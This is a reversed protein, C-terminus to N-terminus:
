RADADADFRRGRRGGRRSSGCGWCPGPTTRPSARPIRWEQWRAPLRVVPAAPRSSPFPTARSPPRPPLQDTRRRAGPRRRPSRQPRLAGWTPWPGGCAGYYRGDLHLYPFGAARGAVPCWSAKAMQRASQVFGAECLRAGQVLVRGATASLLAKWKREGPSKGGRAAALAPRWLAPRASSGIGARRTGAGPPQHKESACQRRAASRRRGRQEAIGSRSGSRTGVPKPVPAHSSGATRGSTVARQAVEVPDQEGEVLSGGPRASRLIM